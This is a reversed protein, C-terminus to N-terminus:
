ARSKEGLEIITRLPANYSLGHEEFIKRRQAATHSTGVEQTQAVAKMRGLRIQPWVASFMASGLSQLAEYSTKLTNADPDLALAVQAYVPGTDIGDDVEHISAGCPTKDYWSWFNPDAGRNYPLLSIHINIIRKHFLQVWAPTIIERCGYLVVWDFTPQTDNQDFNTRYEVQDGPTFAPIISAPYPSVVLIRM